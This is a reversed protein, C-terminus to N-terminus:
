FGGASEQYRVLIIKAALLAESDYGYHLIKKCINVFIGSFNWPLGIGDLVADFGNFHQNWQLARRRKFSLDDLLFKRSTLSNDLENAFM